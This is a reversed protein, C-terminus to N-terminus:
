VALVSMTLLICRGPYTDDGDMGMWGDRQPIVGCRGKKKSMEIQDGDRWAAVRTRRRPTEEAM